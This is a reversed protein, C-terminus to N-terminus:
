QGGKLTFKSLCGKCLFLPIRGFQGVSIKIEITAQDFCGIAECIQKNIEKGLRNSPISTYQM